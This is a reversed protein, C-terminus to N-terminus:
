GMKVLTLEITKYQLMGETESWFKLPYETGAEMELVDLVQVAPYEVGTPFSVRGSGFEAFSRGTLSSVMRVNWCVAYLGSADVTLNSLTTYSSATHWFYAGDYQKKTLTPTVQQATIYSKLTQGHVYMELSDAVEFSDQHEATKGYAVANLKRNVTRVFQASGIVGTFSVATYSDAITLIIEWAHAQSLVYAGSSDALVGSAGSSADSVMQVPTDSTGKQRVSWSAVLANKGGLDTGSWVCSYVGYEGMPDATGDLDCRNVSLSGLRPPTYAEVTLTVTQAATVGRSDTATFVVDINGAQKLLGSNLTLDGVGTTGYTMVSISTSVISAGYQASVGSMTATVGSKGQVYGGTIGPYTEDDITYLPKCVATFTPASDTGATVTLSANDSGLINGDVLTFLQVMATGVSATTMQDLWAIPVSIEQSTTESDLTWWMEQTGFYLGLSHTCGEIYPTVTATLTQGANVSTQSLTLKSANPTYDVELRAWQFRVSGVSLVIDLALTGSAAGFCSAAVNTAVVACEQRTEGTATLPITMTGGNMTLTSNGAGGLVNGYWVLRVSNITANTIATGSYDFYVNRGNGIYVDYYSQGNAAHPNTLNYIAQM